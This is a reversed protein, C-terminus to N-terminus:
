VDIKKCMRCSVLVKWVSNAIIVAEKVNLSSAMTKTTSAVPIMWNIGNAITEMHIVGAQITKATTQKCSLTFSNYFHWQLTLQCSVLPLGSLVLVVYGPEAAVYSRQKEKCSMGILLSTMQQIFLLFVSDRVHEVRWVNGRRTIWAQETRFKFLM